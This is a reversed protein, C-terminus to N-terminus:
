KIRVERGTAASLYIADLMKQVAVGDEGPSMPKKGEVICEVFHACEADHGSINPVRPTLDVQTGRLDKFVRLPGSAMGGETGCVMFTYVDHDIQTAWSVEINITEGGAFKVMGIALDEVDFKGAGGGLGYASMGKGKHGIEAYTSGMVAVPKPKGMLWWTLDLAHVGLDIMPGGGAMKKVGFWGRPIGSRRLYIAKGWYMRGLDGAEAFRKAVQAEGGYRSSFAIMLIRRAKKAARLMAEAEKVNMAPPKEVLVHKGARLCDITQPAHLYNPTGVSVADLGDMRLMKRHDTFVQPVNFEAAVRDARERDIDCVAVIRAHPSQAYGHLHARGIGVGIVAVGVKKAKRAM